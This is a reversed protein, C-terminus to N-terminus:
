QVGGQYTTFVEGIADLRDYLEAAEAQTDCAWVELIEREDEAWVLIKLSGSARNLARRWDKIDLKCVSM